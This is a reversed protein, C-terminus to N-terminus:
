PATYNIPPPSVPQTQDDRLAAIESRLRTLEQEQPSPRAPDTQEKKPRMMMWMMFGMGAPCALAPLAYLLASM